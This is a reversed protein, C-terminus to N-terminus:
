NQIAPLADRHFGVARAGQERDSRRSRATARAVLSNDQKHQATTNNLPPDPCANAGAGAPPQEGAPPGGDTAPM